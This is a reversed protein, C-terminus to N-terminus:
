YIKNRNNEEEKGKKLATDIYKKSAHTYVRYTCAAAISRYLRTYYLHIYLFLRNTMSQLDTEIRAVRLLLACVSLFFYARRKREGLTLLYCSFILFLFSFSTKQHTFGCPNAHLKWLGGWVSRRKKKKKNKQKMENREEINWTTYM